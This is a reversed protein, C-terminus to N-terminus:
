QHTKEIWNLQEWGMSGDNQLKEGPTSRGDNVIKTIANTLEKVKEPNTKVLNKTEGIDDKLNYLSVKKSNKSFLLKWDGKRIGLYGSFDQHIISDRKSRGNGKLEALFSYSDEARNDAIKAGVIDACTAYFDMLSILDSNKTDAKVVGPWTVIFPVRHGGETLRCKCGAYIYSPNHKYKEKRSNPFAKASYGNDASFILLTNDYVGKEKLAKLVKGVFWDIETVFDGYIGARSKGLFEKNPVVPTHPATIPLYLFFPKDSSYDSIYKETLEALKPVADTARMNKDKLGPRWAAKPFQKRLESLEKGKVGKGKAEVIEKPEPYIHGSHQVLESYELKDNKIFAYPPMDWSAAPGIFYDFGLQYPGVKIPKQFDIEKEAKASDVKLDSYVSGDKKQWTIGLHWKGIMATNYGNKKLMSAVTERELPILSPSYGSLVRGKLRSRWCYRGTIIGYRSPTCVSSSTHADTFTMGSKIMRDLNPTQIKSDKNLGSVDGIGMDDALIFVINPKDSADAESIYAGAAIAAVGKMLRKYQIVM